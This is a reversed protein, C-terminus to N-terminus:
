FDLYKLHPPPAIEYNELLHYQQKETSFDLYELSASPSKLLKGFLHHEKSIM